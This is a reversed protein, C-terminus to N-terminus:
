IWFHFGLWEEAPPTSSTYVIWYIHNFYHSWLPWKSRRSAFYSVLQCSILNSVFLLHHCQVLDTAYPHQSPPKEVVRTPHSHPSSLSYVGAPGGFLAPRAQSILHLHWNGLSPIRSPYTPLPCCSLLQQTSWPYSALNMKDFVLFSSQVFYPRGLSVHFKMGSTWFGWCLRGWNVMPTLIETKLTEIGEQSLRSPLESVQRWILCNESSPLDSKGNFFLIYCFGDATPLLVKTIVVIHGLPILPHLFPM